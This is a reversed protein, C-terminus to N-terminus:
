SKGLKKQYLPPDAFFGTIISDAKGISGSPHSKNKCKM